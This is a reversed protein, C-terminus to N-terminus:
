GAPRLCSADQIMCRFGVDPVGNGSLLLRATVRIREYKSSYSGGRAVRLGDDLVDSCWEWVNGLVDRLGWNNPNKMAV